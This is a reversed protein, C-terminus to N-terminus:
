AKKKIKEEVVEMGVEVKKANIRQATVDANSFPCPFLRPINLLDQQLSHMFNYSEYKNM